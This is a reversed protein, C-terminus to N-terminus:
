IALLLLGFLGFGALAFSAGAFRAPKIEWWMWLGSAAWFVMAIIVLDLIVAWVNSSVFPQGYGHRFHARNVFVPATFTQKEHVVKKEVRFYTIRHQAFAANRVIVLRPADAAGQVNFTGTLGLDDLIQRGIARPEADESFTTTYPQEAIKEMRGFNTGYFKRVADFHNLVLGSVAYIIMWPTLFLALYMHTRRIVKSVPLSM